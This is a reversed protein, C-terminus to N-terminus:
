DEDQVKDPKKKKKNLKDVVKELLSIVSSLGPILNPSGSSEPKLEKFATSYEDTWKFATELEKLDFLEGSMKLYVFLRGFRLAHRRNYLITAEHFCSRSLYILFGAAAIFAGGVSSGRLLSLYFIYEYQSKSLGKEITVASAGSGSITKQHPTVLSKLLYRSVSIPKNDVKVIGAEEDQRDFTDQILYYAPCIFSILSLIAAALGAITLFRARWTLYVQAKEVFIDTAALEIHYKDFGDAKLKNSFRGLLVHRSDLEKELARWVKKKFM